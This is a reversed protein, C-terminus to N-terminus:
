TSLNEDLMAAFSFSFSSGTARRARMMVATLQEIQKM